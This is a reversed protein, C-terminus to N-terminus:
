QPTSSTWRDMVALLYGDVTRCFRAVPVFHTQRYTTLEQKHKKTIQWRVKYSLAVAKNTTPDYESSYAYQGDPLKLQTYNEVKDLFIVQGNPMLGAHMAPVGSLGVTALSGPTPAPPASSPGPAPQSPAQQCPGSQCGPGCHSTTNGCVIFCNTPQESCM